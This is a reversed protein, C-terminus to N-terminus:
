LQRINFTTNRIDFLRIINDRQEVSLSACLAALSSQSATLTHSVSLWTSSEMDPTYYAFDGTTYNFWIGTVVSADGFFDSPVSGRMVSYLTNVINSGNIILMTSESATDNELVVEGVGTTKCYLEKIFRLVDTRKWTYYGYTEPIAWLGDDMYTLIDKATITKM